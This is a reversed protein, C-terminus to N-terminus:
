VRSVVAQSYDLLNVTHWHQWGAVTGLPSYLSKYGEWTAM